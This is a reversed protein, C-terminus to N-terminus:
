SECKDKLSAVSSSEVSVNILGKCNSLIKRRVPSDINSQKVYSLWVTATSM